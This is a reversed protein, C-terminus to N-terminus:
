ELLYSKFRQLMSRQEEQRSEYNRKFKDRIANYDLLSSLPQVCPAIVSNYYGLYYQKKAPYMIVIMGIPGNVGVIPYMAASEAKSEELLAVLNPFSRRYAQISDMRIYQNDNIRELEDGYNIYELDKWLRLCSKTDYGRKKETLSTLYRYSLGHTSSLTNHYNLLLVNSADKDDKLIHAVHENVAPTIMKTYEEAAAKEIHVVETYDELIAKTHTSFHLEVTLFALAIIIMTKVGPSLSDVWKYVRELKGLLM